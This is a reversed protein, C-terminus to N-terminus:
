LEIRKNALNSARMIFGALKQMVFYEKAQKKSRFIKYEVPEPLYMDEYEKSYSPDDLMDNIELPDYCEVWVKEIM